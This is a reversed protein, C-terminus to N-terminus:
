ARVRVRGTLLDQMLGQKQARLKALQTKLSSATESLADVRRAIQTQEDTEPRVIRIAKVSGQGINKMSGSTGTAAIEIQRRATSGQLSLTLFRRTIRSLDPQLRLTKDSLMLNQPARMVQCVMGVLESTNARSLLVDGERVLFAPNKLEEDMVIKNETERFGDSNVAGVKLVGWQDGSAPTDPCDPSKGADIGVLCSGVTAVKWEKPIWGLPTEQYLKPAEARTPRLQGDPTVGRTFLDHMLGAKMQQWKQVLAETQEIAADVTGLIEAIRAQIPEPAKPILIERLEAQNLKARTGGKIFPTINKHQLSYFIFDQNLVGDNKARLIHAHNNVWSKGSVKYAIPRTQYEDFYGGDEALLILPEDFIFKDIFGQLGNAGYYPIDGKIESREDANLPVRRNDLIDCCDGLKIPPWNESM